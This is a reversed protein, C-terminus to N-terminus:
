RTYLTKSKSSCKILSQFYDVETIKLNLRLTQLFVSKKIPPDKSQQKNLLIKIAATGSATGAISITSPDLM